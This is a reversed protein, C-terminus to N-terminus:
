DLAMFEQFISEPSWYIIREKRLYLQRFHDRDKNYAALGYSAPIHEMRDLLVPTLENYESIENWRELEEEEADTTPSFSFRSGQFYDHVELDSIHEFFESIDFFAIFKYGESGMERFFKEMSTRASPTTPVYVGEKEMILLKDPSTNSHAYGLAQARIAHSTEGAITEFLDDRNARQKIFEIGSKLFITATPYKKEFYGLREEINGPAIIIIVKHLQPSYAGGFFVLRKWSFGAYEFIIDEPAEPTKLEIEEMLKVADKEFSGLRQELTRIDFEPKNQADKEDLAYIEVLANYCEDAFLLAEDRSIM